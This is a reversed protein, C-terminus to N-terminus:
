GVYRGVFQFLGSPEGNWGRLVKLLDSLNKKNVIADRSVLEVQVQHINHNLYRDDITFVAMVGNDNHITVDTIKGSLLIHAVGRTTSTKMDSSGANVSVVSERITEIGHLAAILILTEDTVGGAGYLIEQAHENGGTAADTYVQRIEDARRQLATTLTNTSM